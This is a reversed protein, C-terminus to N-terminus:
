LRVGRLVITGGSLAAITAGGLGALEDPPPAPRVFRSLYERNLYDRRHAARAKEVAIASDRIADGKARWDRQARSARFSDNWDEFAPVARPFDRCLDLVSDLGTRNRPSIAEVSLLREVADVPLMSRYCERLARTIQCTTWGSRDRFGRLRERAATWNSGRM